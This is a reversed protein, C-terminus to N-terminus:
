MITIEISFASSVKAMLARMTSTAAKIMLLSPLHLLLELQQTPTVVRMREM